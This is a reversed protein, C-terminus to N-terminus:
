KQGAEAQAADLIKNCEEDTLKALDTSINAAGRARALAQPDLTSKLLKQADTLTEKLKANLDDTAKKATTPIADSDDAEGDSPTSGTIQSYISARLKREAKGLIADSGMGANIKVPIEREISDAVGNFKWTAASTVVAGKDGMIKPVGFSLRLDTLGPMERLLRTFGEKTIYCRGSIINFENGVPNLGRLCAEIFCDRVVAPSYGDKNDTRFGLSTNQLPVISEMIEKTILRKMEAVANAMAFGKRIAGMKELAMLSGRKIVNELDTCIVELQNETM